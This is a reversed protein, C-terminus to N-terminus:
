LAAKREGPSQDGPLLEIGAQGEDGPHLEDRLEGRLHIGTRVVRKVALPAAGLQHLAEVVQDPRVTGSPTVAARFTVRWKTEGTPTVEVGQLFRKLEVHHVRGEREERLSLSPAENLRRVAEPLALSGRQAEGARAEEGAEAEEGARAEAGAEAEEVWIEYSAGAVQAALSRGTPRLTVAILKMDAPLVASLRLFFDPPPTEALEFECWEAMSEIGVGLPLALSLLPKPRLGSSLALRGGAQRVARRFVELRDLHSLFRGRGEVSFTAVYRLRSGTPKAGPQEQDRLGSVEGAEGGPRGQTSALDNGPVDVCAGCDLCGSWRCDSTTLGAEAAEWERWLFEKDVVGEIVEWPLRTDKPLDRTALEEMELGIARFASRWVEPRFHETWPDFRAGERWAAEIVPGLEEGGRALAAELHSLELDPLVLKIGRRALRAFLLERRRLLVARLAMGTWQFPTFPKPVFYNVSVNLQFRGAKDGLLERGQERIRLCLDAIAAVDEDQEGPLGIMFYLKLTTRGSRVAERAAALIDEETVNKNILDRMRQSGAEPALTLSAGTPSALRALRVAATDVRLSPLSVRVEPLGRAVRKLVEELGSYDTTSLSGLAIEGYGTAKLQTRALEFVSRPHRERVPRYWMGAQCFRCGRTCGRMVEVWARDHVGGTLPVLCEAPYPAGELRRLVRRRVTRSVGPVYIGEIAALRAKREARSRGTRKAEVLAQLVEPWMEEGDGLAFADFFSSMPLFNSCAPGGGILLPDEEGREAAHLPIGALDLLELVNTFHLEQQLTIGVLDAGCVPTWTELTLLPIATARMESIVEVRPLYVREVEVGSTRQALHYLIQIAQNSIGIEYTDPFGLVVRLCSRDDSFGGGSGFEGGILRAPQRVRALLQAFREQPTTTRM